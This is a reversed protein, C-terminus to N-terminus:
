KRKVIRGKTFDYVSLQVIVEDGPLIKILNKRIKGSIHALITSNFKEDNIKVRFFSNPLAETVVGDLEIGEEKM